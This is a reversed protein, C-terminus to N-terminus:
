KAKILRGETPNSSDMLVAGNSICYICLKNYYDLLFETSRHVNIFDQLVHHISLDSSHSNGINGGGEERGREKGM